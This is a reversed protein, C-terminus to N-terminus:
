RSRLSTVVMLMTGPQIVQAPTYPNDSSPWNVFCSTNYASFIPRGGLLLVPSDDAMAQQIRFLAQERAAADPSTQMTEFAAQVDDNWYRGLNWDGAEGMEFVGGMGRQAIMDRYLWFPGVGTTGAARQAADFNGLARAEWWSDVDIADFTADAGLVQTLNQAIMAGSSVYDNWDSPASIVLSVPNGNPDLLQGAQGVNQYGADILLQRAAEPDGNPGGLTANALAPNLFAEGAPLVLGSPNDLLTGQGQYSIERWAERNIALNAAKRFVPDAFAGEHNNLYMMEIQIDSPTWWVNYGPNANIFNQPNTMPSQSWQVNGAVLANELANNDNYSVLNITAPAPLGQNQGQGGWYDDRRDLRVNGPTFSTVDYPGTYKLDNLDGTMIQEPTLTDLYAKQMIVIQLVNTWDTLRARNFHITVQNGNVDVDGIIRQPDLTYAGDITTDRTTMFTAAIDDATFPTGDNWTIGDRATFTVATYDDNWSYDSALWPTIQSTDLRNIIALPELRLRNYQLIQGTSTPLWPNDTRVNNQGQVVLGINLSTDAPCAGTGGAVDDTGGATGPETAPETAVAGPSTAAATPAATGGGNSTGCAGLLMVAGTILATLGTM